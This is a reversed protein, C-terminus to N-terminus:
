QRKGYVVFDHHFGRSFCSTVTISVDKCGVGGSELKPNGGTDDDWKDFAVVATIKEGKKCVYSFTHSAHGLLSYEKKMESQYLVKDTSSPEGLSLNHRGNMKPIEPWMYSYRDDM